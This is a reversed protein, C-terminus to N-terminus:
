IIWSFQLLSNSCTQSSLSTNGILASLFESLLLNNGYYETAKGWVMQDLVIHYDFFLKINHGAFKPYHSCKWIRTM